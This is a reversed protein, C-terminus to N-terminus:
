GDADRGIERAGVLSRYCTCLFFSLWGAIGLLKLADEAAYRLGESAVGARELLHYDHLKDVAVSAALLVLSTLLLKYDGRLIVARFKFLMAILVAGYVAFVVENSVGLYRPAVWEHIMFADDLLLMTTLLGAFLLFPKEAAEPSIRDLVMVTLFCLAAAGCWLLIGVLSMMGFYPPLNAVAALDKTVHAVDVKGFHDALLVAGILASSPVFTVLIAVPLIDPFWSRRSTMAGNRYEQWPTALADAPAGGAAHGEQTASSQPLFADRPM